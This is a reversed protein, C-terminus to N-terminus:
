ASSRLLSASGRLLSASSRARQELGLSQSRKPGGLRQPLRRKKRATSEITREAPPRRVAGACLRQAASLLPTSFCPGRFGRCTGLCRAPLEESNQVPAV